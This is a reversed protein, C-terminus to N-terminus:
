ADDNNLYFLWLIYLVNDIVVDVRNLLQWIHWCPYLHM